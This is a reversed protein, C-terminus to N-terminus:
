ILVQTLQGCGCVLVIMIEKWLPELTPEEVSDKSPSEVSDIVIEVELPVSEKQFGQREPESRVIWM